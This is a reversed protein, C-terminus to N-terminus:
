FFRELVRITDGPQLLTTPTLEVSREKPSDASKIMIKKRNARYTFDGAAAIANMVTLGSTYPYEGARNVEGLIYFPRGKIMEASVQPNRLYGDKLKTAILNEVERITLGQVKVEGILSMAISGQGDVNFNGSLNPENFVTVKIGDGNGLRYEGSANVTGGASAPPTQAPASACASVIALGLGIMAAKLRTIRIM